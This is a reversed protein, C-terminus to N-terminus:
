AAAQQVALLLLAQELSVALLLEQEQAPPESAKIFVASTKDAASQSKGARLGVSLPTRRTNM